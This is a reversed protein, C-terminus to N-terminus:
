YGVFVVNLPPLSAGLAARTPPPQQLSPALVGSLGLGSSDTLRHTATGWTGNLVLPRLQGKQMLIQEPCTGHFRESLQPLNRVCGARVSLPFGLMEMPAAMGPGLLLTEGNGKGQAGCGGPHLM